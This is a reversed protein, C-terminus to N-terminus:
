MCQNLKIIIFSKLALARLNTQWFILLSQNFSNKNQLHLIINNVKKKYVHITNEEPNNININEGFINKHRRVLKNIM